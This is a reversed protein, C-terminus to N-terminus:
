AAFATVAASAILAATGVLFVVRNIAGNKSKFLDLTVHANSLPALPRLGMPTVVDGALHALVSGTGVAAGLWGVSTPFGVLLTVVGTVVGVALAFWVTHTLSRHEILGTREDADPLTATVIAILAGWLAVQLSWRATALPVVPAYLLANLGLHGRRYM